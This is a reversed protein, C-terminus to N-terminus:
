LLMKYYCDTEQILNHEQLSDEENERLFVLKYFFIIM